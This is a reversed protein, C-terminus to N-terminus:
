QEHEKFCIQHARRLPKESNLGIAGCFRVVLPIASILDLHVVVPSASCGLTRQTGNMSERPEM